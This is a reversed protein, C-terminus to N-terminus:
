WAHLRDADALNFCTTHFEALETDMTLLWQQSSTLNLHQQAKCANPDLWSQSYIEQVVKVDLMFTAIYSHLGHNSLPLSILLSYALASMVTMRAWFNETCCVIEMSTDSNNHNGYALDDM